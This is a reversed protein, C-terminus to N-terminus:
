NEYSTQRGGRSHAYANFKHVDVGHDGCQATPEISGLDLHDLPHQPLVAPRDGILLQDLLGPQRLPPFCRRPRPM